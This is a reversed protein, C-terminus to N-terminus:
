LGFSIQKLTTLSEIPIRCELPVVYITSLCIYLMYLHNFPAYVGFTVSPLITELYLFLYPTNGKLVVHPHVNLRSIYCSILDNSKPYLLVTHLRQIHCLSIYNRSIVVHSKSELHSMFSTAKSYLPLVYFKKIHYSHTLCPFFNHSRGIHALYWCNCEMYTIRLKIPANFLIQPYHFSLIITVISLSLM